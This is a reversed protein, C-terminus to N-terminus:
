HHNTNPKIAGIAEYLALYEDAVSNFSYQTSLRYAQQMMEQIRKTDSLISEITNIIYERSDDREFWLSKDLLQDKSACKARLIPIVGCKLYEFVKNPSCTVWYDSDPRMLFFGFHADQTYEIVKERPLYGAYIFNNSYAENLRAFETLLKEDSTTGGVIFRVNYDKSLLYEAIELILGIDRDYIWNLSGVYVFQITTAPTIKEIKSQIVTDDYDELVPLNPVVAIKSHLFFGQVITKYEDLITVVGDIQNSTLIEAIRGIRPLYFLSFYKNKSEFVEHRDYVIKVKIFYYSIKIALPLLIPDHVHIITSQKLSIDFSNLILKINCNNFFLRNMYHHTKNILSISSIAGGYEYCYYNLNNILKSDTYKRERNINIRFIKFNQKSRNIHRNIRSDQLFHQDLILLQGIYM